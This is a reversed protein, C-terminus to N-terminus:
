RIRFMHQIRLLSNLNLLLPKMILLNTMEQTLGQMMTIRAGRIKLNETMEMGKTVLLENKVSDDTMGIMEALREVLIMM